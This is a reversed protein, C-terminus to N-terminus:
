MFASKLTPDKYGKLKNIYHWVCVIIILASLVM